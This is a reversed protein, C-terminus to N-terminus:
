MWPQVSSPRTTYHVIYEIYSRANDYVARIGEEGPIISRVSDFGQPSKELFQKDQSECVKGVLFKTYFIMGERDAGALHYAYGSYSYFASDSGYIARGYYGGAGVRMDLGEKAVVDINTGRTGHYVMVETKDDVVEKMLEYFKASEPNVVKIVDLVRVGVSKTTQYSGCTDTLFNNEVIKYETSSPDLSTRRFEHEFQDDYSRIQFMEHIPRPGNYKPNPIRISKGTQKALKKPTFGSISYTMDSFNLFHSTTEGHFSDATNVTITAPGSDLIFKTYATEILTQANLDYTSASCGCGCTVFVWSSMPITELFTPEDYNITPDTKVIWPGSKKDHNNIERRISVIEERLLLLERDQDKMDFTLNSKKKLLYKVDDEEKKLRIAFEKEDNKRREEAIKQEKVRTRIREKLDEVGWKKSVGESLQSIDRVNGNMFELTVDDLKYIRMKDSKKLSIGTSLSLTPFHEDKIDDFITQSPQVIPSSLKIINGGTYKKITTSM